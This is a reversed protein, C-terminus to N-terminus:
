PKNYACPTFDDRVLYDEDKPFLKPVQFEQVKSVPSM